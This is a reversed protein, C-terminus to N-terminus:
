MTKRCVQCIKEHDYIKIKKIIQLKDSIKLYKAYKINKIVKESLIEAIKSSNKHHTKIEM